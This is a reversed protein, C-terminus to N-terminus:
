ANGPLPSPRTAAGAGSSLLEGGSEDASEEVVTGRFSCQEAGDPGGRTFMRWLMRQRRRAMAEESEADHGSVWDRAALWLRELVIYAVFSGIVEGLAQGVLDSFSVASGLSAAVSAAASQPSPPLVSPALFSVPFSSTGRQSRWRRWGQWAWRPVELLAVDWIAERFATCWLNKPSEREEQEVVKCGTTTEGGKESVLPPASVVAESAVGATGNSSTSTCLRQTLGDEADGAVDIVAVTGNVAGATAGAPAASPAPAAAVVTAAPSTPRRQEEESATTSCCSAGDTSRSLASFTRKLTNRRRVGSNALLDPTPSTM